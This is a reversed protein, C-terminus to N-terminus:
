VIERVAQRLEREFSHVTDWNKMYVSYTPFCFYLRTSVRQELPSKDQIPRDGGMRVLLYNDIYEYGNLVLAASVIGQPFTAESLYLRDVIGFIPDRRIEVQRLRYGNKKLISNITGFEDPTLSDRRELSYGTATFQINLQARSRLTTYRSIHTTLM